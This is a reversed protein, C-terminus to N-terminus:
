HKRRITSELETGSATLHWANAVGSPQKPGTSEILGLRDLRALLKSMQGQDSIGACASVAVNSAGPEEAIAELVKATRHTLRMNLSRLPDSARSPPELRAPLARRLQRGATASGLYPLVIMWMLENVLENLRQPQARLRAHIVALAGGVVIEAALPSLEHRPQAQARGAAVVGHLLALVGARPEAAPPGFGILYSVMLTGIEPERQVFALLELLAARLCEPWSGEREYAPSVVAALQALGDDIVALVCDDSDAFLDYFTKRSVGARNIVATATMSGYGCEALVAVAAKLLRSRQFEAVRADRGSSRRLDARRWRRLSADAPSVDSGSRGASM